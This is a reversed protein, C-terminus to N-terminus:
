PQPEKRRYMALFEEWTGANESGPPPADSRERWGMRVKAWFCLAWAEGKEMARVIRSVCLGNLKMVGAGLEFEFHKRLTKPDVGNAGVCLAIDDQKFGAGAMALVTERDAKTPRYEPQGRKKPAPLIEDPRSYM